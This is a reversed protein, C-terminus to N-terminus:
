VSIPPCFPLCLSLIPWEGPAPQRSGDFFCCCGHNLNFSNLIVLCFNQYFDILYSSHHIGRVPIVISHNTTTTKSLAISPALRRFSIEKTPVSLLRSISWHAESSFFRHLCLTLSVNSLCIWHCYLAIACHLLVFLCISKRYERILDFWRGNSKM